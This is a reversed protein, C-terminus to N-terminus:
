LESFYHHDEISLDEFHVDHSNRYVMVSGFFHEKFFLFPDKDKAEILNNISTNTFEECCFCSPLFGTVVVLFFPFLIDVSIVISQHHWINDRPWPFPSSKNPSSVPLSKRHQHYATSRTAASHGRLIISSPPFVATKRLWRLHLWKIRWCHLLRATRHHPSWSAASSQPKLKWRYFNRSFITISHLDTVRVVYVPPRAAALHRRVSATSEHAHM